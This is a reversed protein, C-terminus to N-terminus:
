NLHTINVVKDVDTVMVTNLNKKLIEQYIVWERFVAFVCWKAEEM